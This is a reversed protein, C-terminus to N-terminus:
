EGGGKRFEIKVSDGLALNSVIDLVSVEMPGAAREEYVDISHCSGLTYEHTILYIAKTM